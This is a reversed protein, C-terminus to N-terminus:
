EYLLSVKIDGEIDALSALSDIWAVNSSVEVRASSPGGRSSIPFDEAMRSNSMIFFAFYVCPFFSLKLCGERSAEQSLEICRKQM